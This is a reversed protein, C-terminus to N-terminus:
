CDEIADGAKKHKVSFEPIFYPRSVLLDNQPMKDSPVVELFVGNIDWVDYGIELMVTDAIGAYVGYLNPGLNKVDVEFEIEGHGEISEISCVMYTSVGLVMIWDSIKADRLYFGFRPALIKERAFYKLSIKIKETGFPISTVPKGLMDYIKIETFRARGDGRRFVGQEPSTNNNSIDQVIQASVVSYYKQLAEEVNGCFVEKGCNLLIAKQCVSKVTAESHSVFIISVGKRKLEKIKEFCKMQFSYDGVSLVEDVLLIEPECHVAVAFGLRVFMGSSYHKIPSDIFDGIGAFDIINDIKKDIEKKSMGLISGNVYVNERGTLMPHFGAGIEILASTKGQVTIIGKDPMFIGNIMKLLTSKGSGNKGILGISEGKKLEFSVNDIAWFEGPRLQSSDSPISFFDRTIDIAGYLMLNEYSKCFKKSVNEIKVLIDSDM